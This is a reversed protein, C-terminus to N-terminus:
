DCFTVRARGSVTSATDGLLLLGYNVSRLETIAGATSSYDIRTNAKHNFRWMFPTALCASGATGSQPQIIFTRDKIIEFRETNDMNIFSDIDANTLIDTVAPAAGNAQKDKWLIIRIREGTVTNATLIANFKIRIRKLNIKQGIRTNDTTGQPILCLSTGNVAGTFSVLAGTASTTQSFTSDNWKTELSGPLSRRYAMSTRTIGPIMARRAAYLQIKRAEAAKRNAEIRARQAESLMARSKYFQAALPPLGSRLSMESFYQFLIPISFKPHRQVKIAYFAPLPALIVQAGDLWGAVVM